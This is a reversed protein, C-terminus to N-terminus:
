QKKFIQSTVRFFQYFGIAAGIIIGGIIGYPSTDTLVQVIWGLILMFLVSAFLGVAASWALGSQRLTEASLLSQRPEETQFFSPPEVVTQSSQPQMEEAPAPNEAPKEEAAYQSFIQNLPSQQFDEDNEPVPLSATKQTEATPTQEASPVDQRIEEVAETRPQPIEVIKSFVQRIETENAPEPTKTEPASNMEELERRIAEETESKEQKASNLAPEEDHDFLSKIM